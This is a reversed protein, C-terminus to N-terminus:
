WVFAVIKNFFFDCHSIHTKIKEVVKTQLMECDLLFQALHSQFTYQLTGTDKDSKLSVQIKEVYNPFISFYSIHFDTWHLALQEM